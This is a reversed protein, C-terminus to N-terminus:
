SAWAGSIRNRSCVSKQLTMAEFITVWTQVFITNTDGLIKLGAAEKEFMGPFLAARNYKLFFHGANTKLAYTENICGGGHPQSEKIKVPYRSLTTLAAEVSNQLEEPLM